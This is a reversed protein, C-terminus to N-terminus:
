SLRLEHLEDRKKSDQKETSSNTILITCTGIKQNPTEVAAECEIFIYCLRTSRLRQESAFWTLVYRRLCNQESCDEIKDFLHYYM